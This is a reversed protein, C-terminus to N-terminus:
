PFCSFYFTFIVKCMEPIRTYHNGVPLSLGFTSVWWRILSYRLACAQTRGLWRLPEQQAESLTQLSPALTSDSPIWLRFRVLAVWWVIVCPLLRWWRSCRHLAFPLCDPAMSPLMSYSVGASEFTAVNSPM